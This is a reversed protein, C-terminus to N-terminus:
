NLGMVMVRHCIIVNVTCDHRHEETHAHATLTSAPPPRARTHITHLATGGTIAWPRSLAWRADLDGLGGLLPLLATRLPYTHKVTRTRELTLARPRAHRGRRAGLPAASPSGMTARARADRGCLGIRVVGAYEHLYMTLITRYTGPAHTHSACPSRPRACELRSASPSAGGARAHVCPLYECAHM